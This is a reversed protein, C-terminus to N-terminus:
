LSLGLSTSGKKSVARKLISAVLSNKFIAIELFISAGLWKSLTSKQGPPTLQGELISCSGVRMWQWSAHISWNSKGLQHWADEFRFLNCAGIKSHWSLTWEFPACSLMLLWFYGVYELMDLLKEGYVLIGFYDCFIYLHHDFIILSHWVIRTPSSNKWHIEISNCVRVHM